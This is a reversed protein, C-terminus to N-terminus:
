MAPQAFSHGSVELCAQGADVLLKVITNKSANTMRSISRISVGEVVMGLIQARKASPLKNM